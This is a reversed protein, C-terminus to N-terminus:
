DDSVQKQVWRSLWASTEAFRQWGCSRRSYFLARNKDPQLQGCSEHAAQSGGSFGPQVSVVFQLSSLVLAAVEGM